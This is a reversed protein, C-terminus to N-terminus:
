SQVKTKDGLSKKPNINGSKNQTQEYPVNPLPPLCMSTALTTRAIKHVHLLVGLETGAKKTAGNNKRAFRQECIRETNRALSVLGIPQIQQPTKKEPSPGKASNVNGINQKPRHDSYDLDVDAPQNQKKNDSSTCANDKTENKLSPADITRSGKYLPGADVYDPLM